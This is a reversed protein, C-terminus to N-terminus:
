VHASRVVDIEGNDVRAPAAQQARALRWAVAVALVNIGVHGLVFVHPLHMALLLGAILPGAASIGTRLAALAGLTTGVRGPPATAAALSSLMPAYMTEGVAFVGFSVVFLLSAAAPAAFLALELLM